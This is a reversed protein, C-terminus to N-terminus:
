GGDYHWSAFWPRLRFDLPTTPLPRSTAPFSDSKAPSNLGTGAQNGSGSVPWWISQGYQPERNIAEFRAGLSARPRGPPWIGLSFCRPRPYATPWVSGEAARRTGDRRDEAEEPGTRTPTRVAGARLHPSPLPLPPGLLQDFTHLVWLSVHLKPTARTSVWLFICSGFGFQVFLLVVGGWVVGCRVAGCWMVVCGLVVYLLVVSRFPLVHFPIVCSLEHPLVFCVWLSPVAWKLFLGLLKILLFLVM